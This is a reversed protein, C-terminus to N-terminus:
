EKLVWREAYKDIISDEKLFRSIETFRSSSPDFFNGSIKGAQPKLLYLNQKARTSAVYLLRREEEIEEQSHIAYSSPLYGDILYIMFVTHWELGKSSHITSLVVKEDEEDEPTVKFQSEEIPELTLDTLFDELGKYRAAISELSALDEQRKHHDDYKEKLLPTYFDIAKRLKEAFNNGSDPDKIYELTKRLQKLGDSYKKHSHSNDTLFDLGIDEEVIRSVINEAYRPGIGEILMLARNWSVPDKPNYSIKLFSLVDKIHAAENFKIGGYIVYPINHTNLEIELDLSHWASRYLVAMDNLEVGEERLELMRQVIFRSQFNESETEIYGPKEGGEKKTFLKKDYKEKAHEIIQNTFDLIPQTSRYNQELKIIKADPFAKPFDMINKFNAGRFSYISQSDDGVVMLNKHEKALQYVIKAQLKNTDQFEDVMIYRYYGSLKKRIEDNGSLLKELYILLDDYDMITKTKKYDTYANRIKEVAEWHELFHPYDDRIVSKIQCDKNTSKSIVDAITDKRPFRKDKKYLGMRNRVFGVVDEADKRDLITFNETFGVHKAYRRLVQNAFSHFTGGSVHGCREDLIHSARRLMERAAKRTFTLLLVQEPAAGDEVLRAVRYILTRTKGSGAGANVLVPGKKIEVAELQTPNLESAYDIKYERPRAPKLDKLQYEKM